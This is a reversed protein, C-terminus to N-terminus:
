LSFTSFYNLTFTASGSADSVYAYLNQTPLAFAVISSDGNQIGTALTRPSSGDANQSIQVSVYSTSSTTVLLRCSVFTATKPVYSSLTLPTWAGGVIVITPPASNYYARYNTWATPLSGGLKDLTFSYPLQVVNSTTFGPPASSLAEGNKVSATSLFLANSTSTAAAYAYLHPNAQFPKATIKYSSVAKGLAVLDDSFSPADPGSAPVDFNNIVLTYQDRTPAKTPPTFAATYRASASIHLADLYYTSIGGLGFVLNTFHALQMNTKSASSVLTGNLYAYWVGSRFVIAIHSWCYTLISVNTTSGNLGFQLQTQNNVNQIYLTSMDTTSMVYHGNTANNWLWFEITWSSPMVATNVTLTAAGTPLMSLCGTGFKSLATTVSACSNAALWSGGSVGRVDESSMVATGTPGVASFTNLSLTFSDLTPLAPTFADSYRSVSSARFNDIYGEFFVNAAQNRGLYFSSWSPNSLGQEFVKAGNAFVRFYQMDFSVAVHNYANRSLGAGSTTSPNAGAGARISLESGALSVMFGVCSMVTSANADTPYVWVEVTWEDPATLGSLTAYQSQARHLLLSGTGHMGITSVMTASGGSGSLTWAPIGEGSTIQSGANVDESLAIDWPTGQTAGSTTECHNLALTYVDNSFVGPLAYSLATLAYNKFDDITTLGGVGTLGSAGEFHNLVVTQADPSFASASPTFTNSYRAAASVRLEDFYGSCSTGSALQLGAFLAPVNTTSSVTGALSGNLFLLYAANSFVIAIHNWAGANLNSSGTASGINWSSATSGVRLQVTQTAYTTYQLLIFNGSDTMITNTTGAPYWWFEITWPGYVPPCSTLRYYSNNSISLSSGGFKAQATSLAVTGSLALTYLPYAALAPSLPYRAVSSVRVDDVYGGMTRGVIMNTLATSVVNQASNVLVTKAGNLCCVYMSGDFQLAYHNWANYAAFNTATSTSLTIGGITHSITGLPALVQVQIGTDGELYKDLIYFNSSQNTPFFWFEVTWQPPTGAAKGVGLYNAYTSNQLNSIFMSSSGFKAQASLIGSYTGYNYVLASWTALDSLASASDRTCELRGVDEAFDTPLRALDKDFHNLVVTDADRLHASMPAAFNGIYKPARCVRFEDIYGDMSPGLKMNTFSDVAYSAAHSHVLSGNVYAFYNSGTCVLAFHTWTQTKIGSGCTVDAFPAGGNWLVIEMQAGSTVMIQLATADLLTSGYMNNVSFWFDITWSGSPAALGGVTLYNGPACWLSSQGFKATAYSIKAGHGTWTATLSSPSVAYSDGTSGVSAPTDFSHFATMTADPLLLPPVVTNEIPYRVFAHVAFEDYYSATSGYIGTSFASGIQLNSWLLSPLPISSNVVIALQGNILLQYQTGTFQVAVHNWTNIALPVASSNVVAIDATTPDGSSAQSNLWLGLTGSTTVQVLLGIYSNPISGSFIGGVNGFYTPYVSSEITWQPPNYGAQLYISPGWKSGLYYEIARRQDDSIASDYLHFEAILGAFTNTTSESWGGIDITSLNRASALLNYVAGVFAGNLFFRISTGTDQLTLVYVTNATLNFAANYTVTPSALGFILSASTNIQLYLAGGTFTSDTKWLVQTTSFSAPTKFVMAASWATPTVSPAISLYKGGSGGFTLATKSNIASSTAVVNTTGAGAPAAQLSGGYQDAWATVPSTGTVGATADLLFLASSPFDSAIANSYTPTAPLPSSPTPSFINGVTFAGGGAQLLASSVGTRAVNTNIGAVNATSCLTQPGGASEIYLANNPGDFHYLGWTNADATFASASPTFASTYRASNSIRLEDIYFDAYTSSGDYGFMLNQWNVGYANAGAISTAVAGGMFLRHTTGDYTWALHTWTNASLTASSNSANLNYNSNNTSIALTLTQSTTVYSRISLTESSILTYQTGTTRLYIWFEITWNAPAAPLNRVRFHGGTNTCTVSSSGFKAQATSLKSGVSALTLPAIASAAGVPNADTVSVNSSGVVGGEFSVYSVCSFDYFGIVPLFNGSYRAVSSVRLDDVYVAWGSNSGVVAISAFAGSPINSGSGITASSIGNVYLVFASGTYQLAVHTWANVPMSTSATLGYSSGDTSANLTLTGSGDTLLQYSTGAGQFLAASTPNSSAATDLFFWAEVTWVSPTTPGSAGSLGATDPPAYLSCQGFQSRTSSLVSGGTATWTYSTQPYNFHNLILTNADTTFPSSAPTFTSSYRAVNSLRFEDIYGNWVTTSWYSLYFTSWFGSWVKLTSNITIVATGNLFVIYRGDAAGTYVWAYHNWTNAPATAVSQTGGAIDFGGSQTSRAFIQLTNTATLQLWSSGSGPMLLITAAGGANRAWCEATWADAPPTGILTVPVYSGATSPVFLSGNGFKSQATSLSCGNNTYTEYTESSLAYATTYNAYQNPSSNTEFRQVSLTGPLVSMPVSSPAYSKVMFNASSLSAADIYGNLSTATANGTHLVNSGLCIDQLYMPHLRTTTGLSSESSGNLYITYGASAEFALAVHNWANAVPVHPTLMSGSTSISWSVGNGAYFQLKNSNGSDSWLWWSYPSAGCAITYSGSAAANYFWLQLLWANPAPAQLRVRAYANMNPPLLLAGTGARGAVAGSVISAGNVLSWSPARKPYVVAPAAALLNQATPAPPIPSVGFLTGFYNEVAQRSADSLYVNYLQMACVTGVLSKGVDYSGWDRGSVANFYASSWTLTGNVYLNAGGSSELLSLAYLAGAVPSFGTSRSVGGVVYALYQGNSDLQLSVSTSSSADSCWLVAGASKTAFKAIVITTYTTLAGPGTLQVYQANAFSLTNLSGTTSITPAAGSGQLSSTYSGVKETVSTLSGGSSSVTGADTPDIWVVLGSPFNAVVPSNPVSPPTDVDFHALVLTAASRVCPGDMAIASTTSRAVSSVRLEDIYGSFNGSFDSAYPAWGICLDTVCVSPAAPATGSTELAGNLYLRATTSDADFVLAVHSWTSASVNTAGTLTTVSSGNASLSAALVGSAIKLELFKSGDASSGYNSAVIVQDSTDAPYIWADVTWSTVYGAATARANAGSRTCHLSANGFKFQTTDLTATNLTWQAASTMTDPAGAYTDDTGSPNTSFRLDFHNLALTNADLTWPGVPTFSWGAAAPWRAVNSLRFEDVYGNFMANTLTTGSYSYPNAGVALETLTTSALAPASVVCAPDLKGGIYLAYAGVVSDYVLAVHTWKCVPIQPARVNRGSLTLLTTTGRMHNLTLQLTTDASAILVSMSASTNNHDLPFAWFDLTWSGSVPTPQSMTSYRGNGSIRMISLSGTGFKANYGINGYPQSAMWTAGKPTGVDETANLNTPPAGIALRDTDFHNLLLTSSDWAFPSGAPVFAALYRATNSVRLEDIHGDLYNATSNPLQGIWIESFASAPLASGTQTAQLSGNVFLLYAGGDFVVAIHYWSYVSNTAAYTLTYTNSSGNVSVLAKVNATSISITLWATTNSYSFLNFLYADNTSNFANACVWFEVTWQAPTAVSLGVHAGSRTNTQYPLALSSTGFRANAFSVHASGILAGWTATSSPRLYGSASFVGPAVKIAELAGANSYAAAATGAADFHNLAITNSDATFASIPPTFNGTYRAVSSLRFEDIYGNFGESTAFPNYGIVLNGFVTAVITASSAWTNELSGDLFLRYASGDFSLAVHHWANASAIDASLVASAVDSAGVASGITTRLGASTHAVRLVGAADGYAFITGTATDLPYMWAELTWNAPASKLNQVVLTCGANAGRALQLSTSGFKIIANSLPATTSWGPSVAPVTTADSVTALTNSAISQVMRKEAGISITDGASLATFATGSGVLYRGSATFSGTGTVNTYNSQWGLKRWYPQAKMVFAPATEEGSSLDTSGSLGDFHNLYLTDADWAFPATPVADYDAYRVVRSIRLEDIYAVLSNSSSPDAGIFFKYFDDTSYTTATNSFGVTVGNQRVRTYRGDYSIAVHMWRNYYGAALTPQVANSGGTGSSQGLYAGNSSNFIVKPSGAISNNTTGIFAGSGAVPYMWFEITWQSPNVGSPSMFSGPLHEVLAYGFQNFYFSTRGFKKQASSLSAGVVTHTAANTSSSVIPTKLMVTTPDLMSLIESGANLTPLWVTDGVNFEGVFSTGSGHLMRGCVDVTGVRANTDAAIQAPTIQYYSLGSRAFAAEPAVLVSAAPPVAVGGIETTNPDFVGAPAEFHNLAYTYQDLGFPTSQPTFTSPYRVVTSFRFEDLYGNLRYSNSTSSYGLYLDQLRSNPIYSTVGSVELAGNIFLNYVANGGTSPACTLAVHTWAGVFSFNTHTSATFGFLWSSGNGVALYATNSTLRVELWNSQFGGFLGLNNGETSMSIPYVWCEMTWTALPSSAVMGSGVRCLGCIDMFLSIASNVGSTTGPTYLSSSGFKSQTTSVASTNGFLEWYPKRSVVSGMSSANFVVAGRYATSSWGLSASSTLNALLQTSGDSALASAPATYTSGSGYVNTSSVRLDRVYGYFKTGSNDAGLTVSSSVGVNSASGLNTLVGNLGARYTTGDYSICVHSWNGFNVTGASSGAAGTGSVTVAGASSVYVALGGAYLVCQSVGASLPYFFAEVTWTSGVSANSSIAVNQGYLAVATNTSTVPTSSSVFSAYKDGDSTAQVLPANFANSQAFGGWSTLVAGSGQSLASADLAFSPTPSHEFTDFSKALIQTDDLWYDYVFLASIDGSIYADSGSASRGVYTTTLTKNTYAASMITSNVCVGNQFIEAVLSGANYRAVWVTWAGQTITGGSINLINTTSNYLQFMMSTGTSNRALVVSDTANGNNFDMIRENSGATGTFRALAIITLGGNTAPAVSVSSGSLFQSSARAFSVYQANEYGLPLLSGSTTNTDAADLWFQLGSPFSSSTPNSGIPSGPTTLGSVGWKQGLYYEVAQRDSTSLPVNYMQFEGMRGAMTRDAGETSGGINLANITRSSGGGTSSTNLINTGNLWVNVTSMNDTVTIIYTTNTTPATSSQVQNLYLPYRINASGTIQGLEWGYQGWPWTGFFTTLYGTNISSFNVVVTATFGATTNSGGSIQFYQANPGGFTIAQLGNLTGTVPVGSGAASISATAGTASKDRWQSLVTMTDGAAYFTPKASATSQAFGGWSAVASLDSQSLSYDLSTKASPLSSVAASVNSPSCITNMYTFRQLQADSLYSDYFHCFAINVNSYAAGSFNSSRGLIPTTQTRNGFQAVSTWSNMLHGNKFFELTRATYSYRIAVVAWEGQVISNASTYYAVNGAGNYMGIFYQSSGGYRVVEINNNAVNLGGGLDFIGEYNGTSGFFQVMAVATFGGNTAINLTIGSNQMYQNGSRLFQVYKFGSGTVQLTPQNAGTSQAFDGWSSVSSGNSGSLSNAVVSQVPTPTSGRSYFVPAPGFTTLQANSLPSDFVGLYALDMNATADSSLYSKAILTNALTRANYMAGTTTYVNVGNKYVDITGTAATYRVAYLGWVNQVLTNTPTTYSTLTSGNAIGFTLASTAASRQLTINNSVSGGNGFDFVRENNQATGTYRFVAVATFGGAGYMNLTKSPGVLHQNSQLIPATVLAAYGSPAVAANSPVTATLASWGTGLLDSRQFSSFYLTYADSSLPGPTFADLYQQVRSIKISDLAGNFYNASAGDCGLQFSGFAMMDLRHRSFFRQQLAGNVYLFYSRGDYQAAIHMWTGAVPPVPSVCGSQTATTNGFVSVNSNTQMTMYVGATNLYINFFTTQNYNNSFQLGFFCQGPSASVTTPCVWAEVTWAVLKNYDYVAAPTRAITLFDSSASTFMLSTTGFKLPSATLLPGSAGATYTFVPTTDTVRNELLLARRVSGSVPDSTSALGVVRSVAGLDPLAVLDGASFGTLASSASSDGVLLNNLVAVSGALASGGLSFARSSQRRYKSGAATAGASALTMSTSSNIAAVAIQESTDAIRLKDGIQFHTSFATGSGTVTTGSVSVTGPLYDTEVLGSVAPKDVFTSSLDITGGARVAYQGAQTSLSDVSSAGADLLSISSGTTVSKGATAWSTFGTYGLGDASLTTYYPMQAYTNYGPPVDAVGGTYENNVSLFLGSPVTRDYAAYLYVTANSASAGSGITLGGVAATDSLDTDFSFYSYVYGDLVPASTAPTFTANETYRPSFSMTLQDLYGSFLSSSQTGLVARGGICLASLAAPQLPAVGLLSLSPVGNVYVYFNGSNATTLTYSYTIAVHNWAGSTLAGPSATATLATNGYKGPSSVTMAAAGAASFSLALGNGDTMSQLIQFGGTLTTPYLWFDITFASVPSVRNFYLAHGGTFALSKAGFKAQAASLACNGYAALSANTFQACAQVTLDTNLTTTDSFPNLALTHLDLVAASSSVLFPASYRAVNSVRIDDIYGNLSTGFTIGSYFCDISFVYSTVAQFAVNGNWFIKYDTGSCVVAIHSWSGVKIVSTNYTPFSIWDFAGYSTTMSLTGATNVTLTLDSAMVLPSSNSSMAKPCLYFEVTWAKPIHTLLGYLSITTSGNFYASSSGFKSNTTSVLTPTSSNLWTVSANLPASPRELTMRTDSDIAAIKINANLIQIYGGAQFESTFATNTGFVQNGHVRVTGSKATQPLVLGGIASGVQNLRVSISSAIDINRINTSDRAYVYQVSYQDGSVLTPVTTRMYGPPYNVQSTVPQPQTPDLQTVTTWKMGLPQTSDAMLFKGSLSTVPLKSYTSAGSGVILDGKSFSRLGTGGYAPTLSSSLALDGSITLTTFTANPATSPTGLTPPSAFVTPMNGPCLAKTGESVNLADSNSAVAITETQTQQPPTYWKVGLTQSSDSVLFQEATGVGLPALSSGDGVLLDGKTTTSLGTGGQSPPVVTSTTLANASVNRLYATGPATVGITPPSALAGALAAPTVVQDNRVGASVSAASAKITGAVTGAAITTFVGTNPTTGGITVPPAALASAILAPTVLKNSVANTIDSLSTALMAGALSSATIDTFTATTAISGISTFVQVAAKVTGPTIVRTSSTGIYVDTPTALVPGIMSQGELLGVVGTRATVKNANLTSM